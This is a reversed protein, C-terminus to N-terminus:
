GVEVKSSIQKSMAGYFGQCSVTQPQLSPEAISIAQQDSKSLVWLEIGWVWMNAWLWRYVGTGPFGVGDEVRNWCGLVHQVCVSMSVFGSFRCVYFLYFTEFLENSPKIM